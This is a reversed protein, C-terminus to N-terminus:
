QGEEKQTDFFADYPYSYALQRMADIAQPITDEELGDFGAMVEVMHRNVEPSYHIPDTYNELDCVVEAENMFYYLRVNDYQGLAEMVQQQVHLIAETTGNQITQDWFLISYPPIFFYFETDPHAEVYPILVDLNAQMEQDFINETMMVGVPDPRGYVRRVNEEGWAFRNEWAFLDDVTPVPDWTLAYLMSVVQKCLVDKNLLYQVDNWPDDDYLYDPFVYLDETSDKTLLNTDLGWYIRKVDHTAFAMDLVKCFEGFTGGPFTLKATKGGLLEDFWSARFNATVSTGVVLSDYDFHEAIGGVQYRENASVPPLDTWPAHYHFFPDLVFVTGAALALFLLFCAFFGLVFRKNRDM